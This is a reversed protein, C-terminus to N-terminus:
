MLGAKAFASSCEENIFEQWKQQFDGGEAIKEEISDYPSISYRVAQRGWYVYHPVPKRYYPTGPSPHPTRKVKGNSLHTFDGSGAGGHWGNVFVTGFLGDEGHYGNRYGTMKTSEYNIDIDEQDGIYDVDLVEYLSKSRKYVKPTYDRYFSDISEKFWKEICEKRYRTHAKRANKVGVDFAGQAKKTYDAIIGNLFDDVFLDFDSAM